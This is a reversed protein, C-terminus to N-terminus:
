TLISLNLSKSFRIAFILENNVFFIELLNGKKIQLFFSKKQIVSRDNISNRIIINMCIFHQSSMMMIIFM